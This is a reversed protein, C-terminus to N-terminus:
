PKGAAKRRRGSQLYVAHTGGGLKDLADLLDTVLKSPM